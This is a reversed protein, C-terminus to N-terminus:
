RLVGSIDRNMNHVRDELGKRKRELFRVEEEEKKLDEETMPVFAPPDSDVNTDDLENDYDRARDSYVKDLQAVQESIRYEYHEISDQLRNHRQRLGAIRERAGPIPYVGLLKEAGELLTEVDVESQRNTSDYSRYGVGSGAGGGGGRRIREVLETGLVAAVATNRRPARVANAGGGAIINGDGGNVNFTTNRRNSTSTPDQAKLAPPPPPVSFLAREHLETDRILATIDHPQLLANTFIKPPPFPLDAISAACLSIQDIHADLMKM